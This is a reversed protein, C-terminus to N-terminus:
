KVLEVLDEANLEASKNLKDGAMYKKLSYLLQRAEPRQDMNKMFDIGSIM